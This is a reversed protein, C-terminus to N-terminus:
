LIRLFIGAGLWVQRSDSTWVPMDDVLFRTTAVLQELDVFVRLGLSASVLQRWELRAGLGAIPRAAARADMLGEGRGRVLGGIALGCAVISGLRRCGAATIRAAVVHVRGAGVAIEDADGATIDIGLASAGRHVRGGVIVAATNATGDAVGLELTARTRTNSPRILATEPQLESSEAPAVRAEQRLVLSVVVAISEALESCSTASLTRAYEEATASRRYTLTSEVGDDVIQTTVRFSPEATSVVATRGLLENAREAADTLECAGAVQLRATPADAAAISATFLVVALVVRMM